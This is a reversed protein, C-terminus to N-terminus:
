SKSSKSKVEESEAEITKPEAKSNKEEESISKRFGKIAGGLESGLNKIRKPGFLLLVVALIAIIELPGFSFM